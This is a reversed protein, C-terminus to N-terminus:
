ESKIEKKKKELEAQQREIEALKAAKDPPVSPAGPKQGPPGQPPGGQPGGQPPPGKPPGGQFSGGQPPPQGPKWGGEANTQSSKVKGALEGKKQCIEMAKERYKESMRKQNKDWADVSKELLDAEEVSLALFKKEDASLARGEKSAQEVLYQTDKRIQSAIKRSEKVMMEPDMKMPDGALLSTSLGASLALILLPPFKRM